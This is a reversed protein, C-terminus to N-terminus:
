CLISPIQVGHPDGDIIIKGNLINLENITSHLKEQSPIGDDQLHGSAMM